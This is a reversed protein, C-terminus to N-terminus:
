PRRCPPKPLFFVFPKTSKLRHSSSLLALMSLTPYECYQQRLSGTLMSTRESLIKEEDDPKEHYRFSSHSLCPGKRMRSSLQRDTLDSAISRPPVLDSLQRHPSADCGRKTKANLERYKDVQATSLDYTGRDRGCSPSQLVAM